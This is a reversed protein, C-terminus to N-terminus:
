IFVESSISKGKSVSTNGATAVDSDVLLQDGLHDGDCDWAGLVTNTVFRQLVAEMTVEVYQSGPDGGGQVNVESIHAFHFAGAAPRAGAMALVLGLVGIAVRRMM